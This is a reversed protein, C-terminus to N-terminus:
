PKSKRARRREQAPTMPESRRRESAPPPATGQEVYRVFAVEYGDVDRPSESPRVMRHRNWGDEPGLDHPEWGEARMAKVIDTAELDAPVVDRGRPSPIDVIVTVADRRKGLREALFEPPTMRCPIADQPRNALLAGFQAFTFTLTMIHIGSVSDAVDITWGDKGVDGIIGTFGGGRVEAQFERWGGREAM